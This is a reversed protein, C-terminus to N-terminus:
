HTDLIILIKEFQVYNRLKSTLEQHKKVKMFREFKSRLILNERFKLDHQLVAHKSPGKLIRMKAIFVRNKQTGCTRLHIILM